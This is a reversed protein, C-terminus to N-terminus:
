LLVGYVEINSQSYPPLEDSNVLADVIVCGNDVKQGVIEGAIIQAATPTLCVQGAKATDVAMGVNSLPRGMLVFLRRKKSSM